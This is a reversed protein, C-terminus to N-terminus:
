LVFVKRVFDCFDTEFDCEFEIARELTKLLNKEEGKKWYERHAINQM